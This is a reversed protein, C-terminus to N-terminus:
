LAVSRRKPSVHAIAKEIQTRSPSIELFRCISSIADSPCSLLQEYEVALVQSPALTDLFREKETHLWRQVAECEDDTAALWGSSKRSRRKLSEISEELPRSCHVVKLSEGCIGSLMEGMACLHPYKGGALQGTKKCKAFRNFIWNRLNRRTQEPNEIQTAPFKAARECIAALGVAEGGGTSEYGGLRDGMNVGLTHLITAVCSSGSRHLGMAAVFTPKSSPPVRAATTRAWWREQVEKCSIDSAGERQGCLWEAPAYFGGANQKHMRGYHHDIHCRDVWEKTENLWKYLEVLGRGNQVAYAHTRNVDSCRLVNAVGDVKTPTRLHQGGLYAQTWDNPLASLYSCAKEAFDDCFTADDEFILIRKKGDNLANEIINLHSRYCGWAGGGQKWWKPHRCAKGDIAKVVEVSAFPWPSPISAVFDKLRDPRRGLSIVFVRDFYTSWM